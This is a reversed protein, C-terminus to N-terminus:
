QTIPEVIKKQFDKPSIYQIVTRLKGKPDVAVDIGQQPYLYHRASNNGKEDLIKEPDGFRNLIDEENLRIATPIFSLSRITADAFLPYFDEQINYIRKTSISKKDEEFKEIPYHEFEKQPELTMAIRGSFLLGEADGVASERFYGELHHKEGEKFISLSLRNGFVAQADELSSENLTLGFVSLNEGNLRTVWFPETTTKTHVVPNFIPTMFYASGIVFLTGLLYLLATKLRKSM